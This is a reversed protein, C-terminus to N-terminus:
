PVPLRLSQRIRLTLAQAIEEMGRASPHVLDTTLGAASRLLNRGPIHVLRPRRMAAIKEQVIRRFEDAKAGRGAPDLLDGEFTFIDTCFIWQDPHEDAVISIFLDVRRQFEDADVLDLLNIGLELTAFDWDHRDALHRAMEPELCAGGGLGLNLLDADLLQALRSAWMADPAITKSGHTISSGYALGRLAPTQEPRPPEFDGELALLRLHPWWPLLVRTVAADFPLNRARTLRELKEAQPPARIIWEVPEQGLPRWSEFFCGRYLAAAAPQGPTQLLLRAQGGPRLQFRIECGAANLAHFQACGALQRRLADPVRSLWVGDTRERAWPSNGPNAPDYGLFACAAPPLVAADGGTLVEAVNHLQANHYLM